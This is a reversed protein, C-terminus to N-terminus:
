SFYAIAQEVMKDKEPLASVVIKNSCYRGITEKTTSGIAFVISHVPLTNNAFFSEAASPSFFLVGDYEKDVKHQLAETQYVVVESVTITHQHLKNPLEDRRQSGCFFIVEDTNNNDIIQDSLESANDATGAIAGTGFYAEILEKTKYGICYISWDPIHGDLMDVVSQVASASTFIVTALEIAALEVEQQVEITQIPETNIFSLIDLQIGKSRAEKALAM